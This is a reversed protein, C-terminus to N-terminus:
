QGYDLRCHVNSIVIFYFKGVFETTNNCHAACIVVSVYWLKDVAAPATDTRPKKVALVAPEAGSKRKVSSSKSSQSASAPLQTKVEVQGCSVRGASRVTDVSLGTLVVVPSQRCTDVVSGGVSVRVVSKKVPSKLTKESGSGHKVSVSKHLESVVHGSELPKSTSQAPEREVSMCTKDVTSPSECATESLSAVNLSQFYNSSASTDVCERMDPSCYRHFSLRKLRVLVAPESNVHTLGPVNSSLKPMSISEATHASIPPKTPVAAPSLSPPPLVALESLDALPPLDDDNIVSDVVDDIDHSMGVVLVSKDIITLPSLQPHSDDLLDNCIQDLEDDGNSRPGHEASLQQEVASMLLPVQPEDRPVFNKM